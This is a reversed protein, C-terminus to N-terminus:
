NTVVPLYLTHNMEVPAADGTVAFETFHDAQCTLINNATDVSSTVSKWENITEDLWECQLTEESLGAAALEEDSYRQQMEYPQEFQDHVTGDAAVAELIFRRLGKRNPASPDYTWEVETYNLAVEEIVAQPPFTIQFGAEPREVKGGDPTVSGIAEGNDLIMSGGKPHSASLAFPKDADFDGLLPLSVKGNVVTGRAVPNGDQLLTIVVEEIPYRLEWITPDFKVLEYLRPLKIFWPNSTWMQMTPDGYVHYLVIDTNAESQSVSGATQAVGVQGALYSKGYNLIDGLRRLSTNGGEPVVTPWTADFLGRALASNAWTPSNRTDGIVGVAGGEMRLINEAWYAGGVTTNYTYADNAPNRTENDFLGSACNVSYVVPLKSGNTLSGLNSSKFSPSSWGSIGGHDRHFMLFRGENIANVVDSSSGNWGFGSGPALEAPLAAGNRYKRPTTDRGATVYDPEYGTGTSYIREVTYGLSTLRDRVLESTEIFSRVTRGDDAVDNRCCQFYAAFSMNRYFGSAVPPHKEYNVIKNIVVNAQDLTDVPIRGIALDPMIDANDMLAYDLDTGASDGYHTARYFPAIQEADGLLLVYSPRIICNNFQNRIYQQIEEKTTGADGADNGTEVVKTAIGKQIKWTRLTDAAPRFAPDTVILYEYGWCLNPLLDGPFPYKEIVRYNLALEYIPLQHNDFPNDIRERPLFGGKGGEFKVELHVKDFLTLYRKAPTYQGTAINLQVLDLDRVRGLPQVTVIQAPFPDGSAYAKEDIVFPFDMFDEPKPDDDGPQEQAMVGDAAAPQAPYLIVDTMYRSVQVDVGAVSVKADRPIALIRHIVPVAPLGPQSGDMDVGPVALETYMQGDDAKVPWRQAQPVEVVAAFSTNDAQIVEVGIQDKPNFIPLEPQQIVPEQQAPPCNNLGYRVANAFLQQGNSNMARPNGAFGWLQHCVKGFQETILPYHSEDNPERGLPTVGAVPAPLHIGVEAVGENYLALPGPLLGTLDYPFQYYPLNADGIIERQTGHWGNAWGINMDLKGFYAYGGNGVGILPRDGRAIHFPQLAANGWTDLDGTDNGIIILKYHGFNTTLVDNIHILQVSYGESSLFAQFASASATDTDFVYAIDATPVKPARARLTTDLGLTGVLHAPVTQPPLKSALGFFFSSDGKGRSAGVCIAPDFGFTIKGGDQVAKVPKVNGLGGKTVVFVQEPKADGDYDMSVVPGFDISMETVCAAATLGVANRLDIRYLYPYLGAGTAGAEGAPWLRSQLFADGTAAPPLFHSALDDVTITCDADFLCNIDPAAVEVLTLATATVEAAPRAVPAAQVAPAAGLTSTLLMATVVMVAFLRQFWQQKPVHTSRSSM